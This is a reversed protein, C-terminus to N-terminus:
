ARYKKNLKIYQYLLLRDGTISRCFPDCKNRLLYEFCDELVWVRTKDLPENDVCVILLPVGNLTSM